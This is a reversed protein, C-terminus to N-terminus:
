RPSGPRAPCGRTRTTACRRCGFSNTSTSANRSPSAPRTCTSLSCKAAAMAAIGSTSSLRRITLWTTSWSSQFSIPSTADRRSATSSAAPGTAWSCHAPATPAGAGPERLRQPVIRHDGHVRTSRHAARAEGQRDGVRGRRCRHGRTSGLQGTVIAVGSVAAHEELAAVPSPTSSCKATTRGTARRSAGRSARGCRSRALRRADQDGLDDRQNMTVFLDDTGPFFALGIPPASTTQSSRCTAATPSSRSSRRRTRRGDAHLLRVPGLHRRVPARRRGATIGNVEGTGDPFSVITRARDRVLQRRVRQARGRRRGPVRLAHRRDLRLGLPTHVDTVIKQPTAGAESVLYVADKGKDSAAATAVWM